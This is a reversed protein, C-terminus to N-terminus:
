KGSFTKIPPLHDRVSAVILGTSCGRSGPIFRRCHGESSEQAATEPEHQEQKTERDPRQLSKQDPLDLPLDQLRGITRLATETDRIV